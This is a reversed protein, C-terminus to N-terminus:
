RKRWRRWSALFLVAPIAVLSLTGPEPISMLVVNDLGVYKQNTGANGILSLSTTASTAVFDFQFTEWQNYNQPTSIFLESDSGATVEVGVPATDYQPDTGIDFVLRYQTGVTTPIAQDLQVGGYPTSDHYGSLDLFYSGDSASLAFPNSPGIWALSANAVTWDAMDTSGVALDMTDQANPVFNGLEFSGNNLLNAYSPLAFGLVVASLACFRKTSLM